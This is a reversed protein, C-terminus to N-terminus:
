DRNKSKIKSKVHLGFSGNATYVLVLNPVFMEILKDKSIKFTKLIKSRIYEAKQQDVRNNYFVVYDPNLFIENGFIKKFQTIIKEVSSEFSKVIGGLKNKIDFNIVPRTKLANLIKSLSKPVRGSNVLPSWNECTFSTFNYKYYDRCYSLVEFFDEGNNIKEKASEVLKKIAFGVEKTDVVYVKDKYEEELYKINNHYSSLGSSVTFIIIKDYNELLDEVEAIVKGPSVASTKFSNGSDFEELIKENTLTKNDDNYEVNNKDTINFFVQRTDDSTIEENYLGISSDVIYGVKIKKDM